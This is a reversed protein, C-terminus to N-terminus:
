NVHKTMKQIESAPKRLNETILIPLRIIAEITNNEVFSKLM